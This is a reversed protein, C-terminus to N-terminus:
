ASEVINYFFILFKGTLLDLDLIKSIFVQNAEFNRSLVNFEAVNGVLFCEESDVEWVSALCYSITYPYVVLLNPFKYNELSSNEISIFASYSQSSVEYDLTANSNTRRPSWSRRYLPLPRIIVM